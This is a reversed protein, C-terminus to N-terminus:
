VRFLKLMEEEDMVQIDLEQAKKLKSGAKEGAIVLDTNKSVSASVKAGLEILRAKADSRNMRSLSGTLVITKGALPL